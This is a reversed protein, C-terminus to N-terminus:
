HIPVVYELYQTEPNQIIFYQVIFFCGKQITATKKRKRELSPFM